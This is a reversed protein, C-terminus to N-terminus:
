TFGAPRDNEYIVGGSVTWVNGHDDIIKSTSPITTGSPSAGAAARPDASPTWGTGNWSWWGGSSNEVYIVAGYYLLLVANASYSALQGNVHVVGGSVTWVAGASDTIQTANPITTGSPSATSTATARVIVGTTSASLSFPLCLAALAAYLCVIFPRM